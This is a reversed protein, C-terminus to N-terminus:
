PTSIPIFIKPLELVLNYYNELEEGGLQWLTDSYMVLILVAILSKAPMSMFYVQLQPSYTGLISFGAEILLLVLIIPGAYLVFKYLMGAVSDIHVQYGSDAMTPMWETPPWLLYSEILVSFLAPFTGTVILLIVMVKSMLDALMSSDPGVGPAFYGGSLAGRQNDIMVGVSQFLMFPLALLFGLLFGIVAEKLIIFGLLIMGFNRQELPEILTVSIPLAVAVVVAYRPLGKLQKFSFMPILLFASLVRAISISLAEIYPLISQVIENM